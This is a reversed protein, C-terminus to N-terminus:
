ENLLYNKILESVFKKTEKPVEPYEPHGQICLANIDDYYVIEPELFNEKLKFEQHHGNLYTSSLFYESWAILEYKKQALHFPYMMQHHSSSMEYSKYHDPGLNFSSQISHSGNHGEVHQIINGGALINLLQAGRCIGLKPVFKYTNLMIIEKTDREVDTKTFEGKLQGYNSPDIDPGGTLLILDIQEPKKEDFVVLEVEGLMEKLFTHYHANVSSLVLVRKPNNKKIKM